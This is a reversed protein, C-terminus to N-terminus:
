NVVKGVVDTAADGFLSGLDLLADALKEQLEEAKRVIAPTPIDPLGFLHKFADELKPMQPCCTPCLAVVEFLREPHFRVRRVCEPCFRVDIRVGRLM